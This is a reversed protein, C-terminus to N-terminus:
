GKFGNQIAELLIKYYGEAGHYILHKRALEKGYNFEKNTLMQYFEVSTFIHGHIEPVMLEGEKLAIRYPKKDESDPIVFAIDLDSNTKQKGEAYSGGILLIYFPSKIMDMIKLINKHPTDTRKEKILYEAYALYHISENNEPNLIYINTNGKRKETLIQLRSFKKLAEFVYHHSKNKTIAKIETLTFDRAPEKIFPRLFQLEGKLQGNKHIIKDMKISKITERM